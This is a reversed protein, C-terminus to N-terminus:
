KKVRKWLQLLQLIFRKIHRVVQVLLVMAKALIRKNVAVLLSVGLLTNTLIVLTYLSISLVLCMVYGYCEKTCKEM